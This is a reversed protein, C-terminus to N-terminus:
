EKRITWVIIPTMLWPGIPRHDIYGTLPIWWSRYPWEKSGDPSPEIHLILISAMNGEHEDELVDGARVHKSYASM